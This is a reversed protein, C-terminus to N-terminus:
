HVIVILGRFGALAIGEAGTMNEKLKLLNPNVGVYNIEYVGM